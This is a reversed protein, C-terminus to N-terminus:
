LLLHRSATHHCCCCTARLEGLSGKSGHGACSRIQEPDLLNAMLCNVVALQERDLPTAAQGLEQVRQVTRACAAVAAAGAEAVFFTLTRKPAVAAAYTLTYWLRGDDESVGRSRKTDVAECCQLLLKLMDADPPCAPLPAPSLAHGTISITSMCAGSCLCRWHMLISQDQSSCHIGDVCVFHDKLSCCIGDM